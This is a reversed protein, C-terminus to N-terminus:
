AAHSNSHKLENVMWGLIELMKDLIKPDTLQSLSIAPYGDRALDNTTEESLKALKTRLESALTENNFPPREKLVQFRIVLVRRKQVVFPNCRKGGSQISPDFSVGSKGNSFMNELGHDRSWSILNRVILAEEPPFSRDVDKLFETESSENRNSRLIPNKDIVGIVRPVLTKVGDGIFQKIEIGLVEGPSLHRNLFEIIRRLETPIEDAVFIMRIRGDELNMKVRQWYETIELEDGILVRLASSPISGDAECRSEFEAKIKEVPWYAVANAAYDLMQGVVERRIRTDTSRKVEILTPIGEQDLFLHDVSWRGSGDAEGPISMERRILLWRRPTDCNIQEGALLDPHNALLEQLLSESDYFAEDMPTLKFNDNLLYIRAAM